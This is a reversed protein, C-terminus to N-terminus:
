DLEIWSQNTLNWKFKQIFGTNQNILIRYSGYKSVQGNLPNLTIDIAGGNELGSLGSSIFIGKLGNCLTSFIMSKGSLINFTPNSSFPNEVVNNSFNASITNTSTQNNTSIQYNLSTSTGNVSPCILLSTGNLSQSRSKLYEINTMLSRFDGELNSKQRWDSISPSILSSVILLISIVVIVELFSAGQQNM